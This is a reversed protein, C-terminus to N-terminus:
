PCSEQRCLIKQLTRYHLYLQREDPDTLQCLVTDQVKEYSSFNDANEQVGELAMMAAVLLDNQPQLQQLSQRDMRNPQLPIIGMRQYRDIFDLKISREPIRYSVHGLLDSDVLTSKIMKVTRKQPSDEIIEIDGDNGFFPAKVDIPITDKKKRRRPMMQNGYASKNCRFCLRINGQSDQMDFVQEASSGSKYDMTDVYEGDCHQAVSTAAGNTQFIRLIWLRNAALFTSHEHVLTVASSSVSVTLADEDGTVSVLGKPVFPTWVM